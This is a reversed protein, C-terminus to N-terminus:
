RRTPHSDPERDQDYLGTGSAPPLEALQQVRQRSLRAATAIETYTYGDQLCRRIAATRILDFRDRFLGNLTIVEQAAAVVALPSGAQRIENEVIRAVEEIRQATEPTM